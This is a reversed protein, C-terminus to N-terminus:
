NDGLFLANMVAVALLANPGIPKGRVHQGLLGEVDAEPMGGGILGLEIVREIDSLQYDGSNLRTFCAAASNGNAGPFGRYNLVNRVWPNSLDFIHTGGAWTIERAVVNTATDTM